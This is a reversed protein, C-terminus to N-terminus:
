ALYSHSYLGLCVRYQLILKLLSRIINMKRKKMKEGGYEIKDHKSVNYRLMASVKGSSRREKEGKEKTREDRKKTRWKLDMKTEDNKKLRRGSKAEEKVEKKKKCIEGSNKRKRKGLSRWLM